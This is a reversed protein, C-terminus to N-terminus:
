YFAPQPLESIRVIRSSARGDAIEPVVWVYARLNRTRRMIQNWDFSCAREIQRSRMGQPNLTERCVWLILGGSNEPTHRQRYEPPTAPMFVTQYAGNHEFQQDYRQYDADFLGIYLGYQLNRNQEAESFEVMFSVRARGQNQGDLGVQLQINHIQAM